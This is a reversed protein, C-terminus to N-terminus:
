AANRATVVWSSSDMYIGDDTIYPRYMEGLAAVLEDHVDKAADGAERYLEGAPGLALQFNIADEIDHGVCVKADVREFAIDEFGSAKMQATVTEADAMSFPGPGCTRADETLPPLYDVAVDKAKQLWPNDARDRWVIMTFRGGPKLSKRMNRMAVVPNAFFMTGFRSFLLDYDGQFPFVEVDAAVFEIHDIGEAEADRRGHELFADVCDMATVFGSPGVRKALMIATDGFGAGADLVREGPNVDLKPFIADSHLSLGDVLVHKYKTFKPGLIENWFVVFENDQQVAAESM